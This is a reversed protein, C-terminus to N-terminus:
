RELNRENLCTEKESHHQSSRAVGESRQEIEAQFMKDGPVPQTRANKQKEVACSLQENLSSREEFYGHLDFGIGRLNNMLVAYNDQCRPNYNRRKFFAEMSMVKYPAESVIENLSVTMEATARIAIHGESPRKCLPVIVSDTLVNERQHVAEEEAFVVGREGEFVAAEKYRFAAYGPYNSEIFADIDYVKIKNMFIGWM